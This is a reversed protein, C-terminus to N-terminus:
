GYVRARVRDHPLEPMFLTRQHLHRQLDKLILILWLHLVRIPVAHQLGEPLSQVIPEEGEDDKIGDVLSHLVEVLEPTCGLGFPKLHATQWM